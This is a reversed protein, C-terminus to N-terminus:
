PAEPGPRSPYAPPLGAEIAALVAFGAAIEMRRANVERLIVGAEQQEGSHMTAARQARKENTDRAKFLEAAADELYTM